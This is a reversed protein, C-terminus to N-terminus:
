GVILATWLVIDQLPLKELVSQAQPLAGCKGYMDVLAGGFVINHELLGQRSIEDHIKKGKDLAGIVACSKLICVYTVIDPSAGEQQMQEFCELAQQGQGHQAYGTILASCSVVDQFPLKKLVGQAQPLAGCKAYM